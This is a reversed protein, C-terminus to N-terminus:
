ALFNFNIQIAVRVLVCFKQSCIEIINCCYQESTVGSLLPQGTLIKRIEMFIHYENSTGRSATRIFVVVYSKKQSILFILYKETLFTGLRSSHNSCFLRAIKGCHQLLVPNRISILNRVTNACYGKRAINCFYQSELIM